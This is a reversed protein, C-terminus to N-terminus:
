APLAAIEEGSGGTSGDYPDEDDANQPHNAPKNNAVSAGYVGM